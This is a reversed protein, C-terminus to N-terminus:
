KITWFSSISPSSPKVFNLAVGCSGQQCRPLFSCGQPHPPSVQLPAEPIVGSGAGTGDQM